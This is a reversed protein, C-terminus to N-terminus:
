RRRRAPDTPTVSRALAGPGPRAYHELSPISVHRSRALLLPLNTGEEAAYTLASHRLKQPSWGTRERFLTAAGPLSVPEGTDADIDVAPAARAPLRDALFVPGASRGALLRPLLQAAGTQSFAWEVAGGQLAGPGSPPSTSTASTSGLIENARVATEYLLRWLTKERLAIDGRRWRSEIQPRTLARTRDPHEPRRDLIVTPDTGPWGQTTWWAVAARM